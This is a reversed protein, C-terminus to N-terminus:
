VSVDLTLSGSISQLEVISGDKIDVLSDLYLGGTQGYLNNTKQSLSSDILLAVNFDTTPTIFRVTNGNSPIIRIGLAGIEISSDNISVNATAEPVALRDFGVFGGGNVTYPCVLVEIEKLNKDYLIFEIDGNGLTNNQINVDITTSRKSFVFQNTGIPSFDYNEILEYKLEVRKGQNIDVKRLYGGMKNGRYNFTILGSLDEPINNDPTNISITGVSIKRDTIPIDSREYVGDVEFETYGESSTYALNGTCSGIIISNAEICKRPTFMVNFRTSMSILSSTPIIPIDRRLVYYGTLDGTTVYKLGFFFLDKDSTNDTTESGRSHVLLEVGYNDCRYPSILSLETDSITLGTSYTTNLNFESRGNVIEYDQNEYGAKVRSYILAKNISYNYDNYIEIEKVENGSFFSSRHKFIISNDKIEYVYGFVAKMWDRFKNFSTYVKANPINRISEAACMWTNSLRSDSYDYGDNSLDDYGKMKHIIAKLLLYPSFRDITIRNQLRDTWTVKINQNSIYYDIFSTTGGFQLRLGQHNTLSLNTSKYRVNKNSTSLQAIKIDRIATNDIISFIELFVGADQSARGTFEITLDILVLGKAIIFCNKIESGLEPLVDHVDLKNRHLIETEVVYLPAEIVGSFSTLPLTFKIEDNSDNNEGTLTFTASQEVEIGDYYFPEIEEKIDAVNIEFETGGQSKIINALSNDVGEISFIFGNDTLTSFDLLCRFVENYTWSNNRLRFAITAHSSLYNAEYQKKLLSYAKGIFDFKSTFSRVVGDYDNRVLSMIIEDWNRITDRGELDYEVGDVILTYLHYM